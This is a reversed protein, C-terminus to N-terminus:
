TVIRRRIRMYIILLLIIILLILIIHIPDLEEAEASPRTYNTILSTTPMISPSTISETISSTQTENVIYEYGVGYVIAKSRTIPDYSSLMEEQTTWLPSLMDMVRPEVGASLASPDAGGCKWEQAKVAMPRWYDIGFGDQSGIIVIYEWDSTPGNIILTSGNPLVISKPLIAHIENNAEDVYFEMINSIITGDPLWLKNGYSWGAMRLAYEWADEKAIAINSGRSAWTAGHDELADIYVEIIQLSFSYPANWPNGGLERFKFIFRISDGQDYVRYSWLDFVGEIFVPNLPYTYNGPGHDDGIPDNYSFVLKGSIGIRRVTYAPYDYPAIGILEGRGNVLLIRIYIKSSYDGPISLLDYPIAYEVVNNRYSRNISNIIEEWSENGMARYIANNIISYSVMFGVSHGYYDLYNSTIGWEFGIDVVLHYYESYNIKIGIYINGYDSGIYLEPITSISLYLSSNNWENDDIFGDIVPSIIGSEERYALALWYPQGDPYYDTCLYPPPDQGISEYVTRLYFKVLMDGIYDYGGGMDAGYGWYWDSGEARLLYELAKRADDDWTWPSTWSWGHSVVYNYLSKRTWKLFMWAMNEQLEGIWLDLSGGAWSGEPFKQLIRKRPLENYDRYNSLDKDKLDLVNVTLEPYEIAYEIGNYKFLYESLTVTKIIGQRQLQSLREYLKTLFDTADNPYSDWANEGDLAVVLIRGGGVMDKVYLITNIFDNVADESNWGSYTFSVKDSLVWDRFFIYIRKGNFDVYYPRTIKYYNPSGGSIFSPDAFAAVRPDTVTWSINYKVFIQLSEENIAQEPPWLGIPKMGFLREYMEIAKMMHIELDEKWGFDVILPSLPHTYPTTIVEITGNEQLVKHIELAKIAQDIHADLVKRLDDRTFPTYRLDTSKYDGRYWLEMLDPYIKEIVLPNMWYLNFMVALDIYDQESFYSTIRKIRESPDFGGYLDFAKNRKDLLEKYRPHKNVITNWNIDFFGGPIQLMAWKDEISLEQGSAIKLSIIYQKDRCSDNIFDHLQILLSGTLDITVHIDPYLKSLWAMKFYDKAAHLRLWPMLANGDLDEYFPQHQHWIIALYLPEGDSYYWPYTSISPIAVIILLIVIVILMYPRPM